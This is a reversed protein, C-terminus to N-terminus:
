TRSRRSLALGVLALLVLAISAPEPIGRNQTSPTVRLFSQSSALPSAQYVSFEYAQFSWGSWQGTQVNTLLTNAYSVVDANTGSLRLGGTATSYGNGEGMIEWLAYGFAASKEAVSFVGSAQLTDAYAYNYLQVIKAMVDAPDRNDYGTALNAYNPSTLAFQQEYGGGASFFAALDTPVYNATTAATTFPSLCYVWEGNTLQYSGIRINGSTATVAALAPDKHFTLKGVQSRSTTDGLTLSVPAAHAGLSILAVATLLTQRVLHASTTRTM